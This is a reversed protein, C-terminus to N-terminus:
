VTAPKWNIVVVTGGQPRPKWEVTGRLEGKVMMEVIRMGLGTRATNENMGCGDDSVTVTLEAEQRHAEVWVTGDSGALGHSVANTVLETAVTALAAAEDASLVGFEGSIQVEAAAGTSAVSAAMRLISEALQDFDVAEDVNQSLAEHVKAITEIRREAEQLADKTEQSNARRAQMRLLASVTQLNNKVRHHIERITADKTMLEQERRRMETVDRLLLVAGVREGNKLLVLSRFVVASGDVEVDVRWSARGLVVNTFVETIEYRERLVATIENLLVKGVLNTSIGLRRMCSNANPTIHLIGGVEDLLIIGDVVRPAGRSGSSSTRDYPYESRTIMECLIDVAQSELQERTSAIGPSSYNTERSIVAISRGEYVVPVYSITVSYTGAWHVGASQQIKQTQVARDLVAKRGQPAYLGIIDEIHVTTATAARCMAAAVYDGSATPLWLVLDSGSLDALVQWDALLLHLWNVETPSIEVNWSERVLESLSQM